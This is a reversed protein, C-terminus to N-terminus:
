YGWKDFLMGPKDLGFEFPVGKKMNSITSPNPERPLQTPVVMVSIDELYEVDDRNQVYPREFFEKAEIRNNAWCWREDQRVKKTEKNVFYITARFVRTMKGLVAELNDM